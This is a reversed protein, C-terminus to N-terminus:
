LKGHVTIRHICCEKIKIELPLHYAHTLELCGLTDGLLAVNEGHQQTPPAQQGAPHEHAAAHAATQCPQKSALGEQDCVISCNNNLQLIINSWCLTVASNRALNKKISDAKQVPPIT